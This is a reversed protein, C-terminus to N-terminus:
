KVGVKQNESCVYELVGTDALLALAVTYGFPRTYYRPPLVRALEAM